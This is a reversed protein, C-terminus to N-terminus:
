DELVAGLSNRLPGQTPGFTSFSDPIGHVNNGDREVPARLSKRAAFPFV